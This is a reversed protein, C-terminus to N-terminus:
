YLDESYLECERNDEKYWETSQSLQGCMKAHQWADYRDLFNGDHDIFGEKIVKYTDHSLGLERIIGYGDGHRRCPLITTYDFNNVEVLLAACILM